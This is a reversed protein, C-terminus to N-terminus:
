DASPLLRLAKRVSREIGDRMFSTDAPTRKDAHIKLAFEGGYLREGTKVDVFAIRYSVDLFYPPNTSAHFSLITSQLYADYASKRDGSSGEEPLGLPPAKGGSQSTAVYGRKILEERLSGNILTPFNFVRLGTLRQTLGGFEVHDLARTTRNATDLLYVSNPKLKDFEPHIAPLPACGAGAVLTVLAGLAVGRTLSRAIVLTGEVRDSRSRDPRSV